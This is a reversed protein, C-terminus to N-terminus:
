HWQWLGFQTAVKSALARDLGRKVCIAMLEAHEQGPNAALEKTERAPDATDPLSLVM